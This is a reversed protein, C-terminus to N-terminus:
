NNEGGLLLRRWNAPLAVPEEFKTGIYYDLGGPRQRHDIWCVQSNLLWNGGGGIPIVMELMYDEPAQRCTELPIGSLEPGPLALCAGGQSIDVVLVPRRETIPGRTLGDVVRLDTELETQDRGNNRRESKKRWPWM